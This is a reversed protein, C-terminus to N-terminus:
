LGAEMLQSEIVERDDRDVVTELEQRALRAYETAEAANGAAQQARAMVELASALDWDELGDGGKRVLELCSTAHHLAPEARGLAAYVRACQNEGRALNAANGVEGWHHRSAHVCHILEDVQEPTRDELELLRWSRNFLEVALRRHTAADVADVSMTTMLSEKGEILHQLRSLAYKIETSRLALRRQHVLLRERLLDGDADLLAGIELLPLELERMRRIALGRVVQEPAYLRYRNEPDIKVPSLLGLRDYSRLAKASLGTARSFAGITMTKEAV